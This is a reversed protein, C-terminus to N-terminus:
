EQKTNKISCKDTNGLRRNKNVVLRSTADITHKSDCICQIHIHVRYKTTVGEEDPKATTSHAREAGLYIEKKREKCFLWL